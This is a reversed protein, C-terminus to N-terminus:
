FSISVILNSFRVGDLLNLSASSLIETEPLDIIDSPKGLGFGHRALM